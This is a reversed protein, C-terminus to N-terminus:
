ELDVHRVEGVDPQEGTVMAKAIEFLVVPRSTDKDLYTVSHADVFILAIRPDDAGGERGEGEKPFWVKWSPSWLERIRERDQSVRATGAVSVWERSQSDFYAVNVHPDHRIEEIKHSDISAVFWLDADNERAQTAMPRSVLEGDARRTTFMAMEIGDILEHLTDLKKEDPATM